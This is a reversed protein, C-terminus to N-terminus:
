ESDRHKKFKNRKRWLHAFMFREGKVIDQDALFSLIKRHEDQTAQKGKETLQQYFLLSNSNLNLRRFTTYLTENGSAEVMALHFQFHLNSFVLVDNVMDCEDMKDLIDSFPQIDTKKECNLRFALSELYSRIEALYQYEAITMEKVYSGSHPLVMVFGDQELRKIAERVPTRSCDYDNSLSNESLKSGPAFENTLIKNRIDNYIQEIVITKTAM